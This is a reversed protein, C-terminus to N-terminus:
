VFLTEDTEKPGQTKDLGTIALTLPPTILVWYIFGAAFDICKVDFQAHSINVM